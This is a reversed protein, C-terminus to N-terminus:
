KSDITQILMQCPSKQNLKETRQLSGFFQDGRQQCYIGYMGQIWGGPGLISARWWGSEIAVNGPDPLGTVLGQNAVPIRPGPPYIWYM